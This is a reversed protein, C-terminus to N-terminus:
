FCPSIPLRAIEVHSQSSDSVEWGRTGMVESEPDAKALEATPEEWIPSSTLRYSFFRGRRAVSRNGTGFPRRAFSSEKSKIKKKKKNAPYGDLLIKM